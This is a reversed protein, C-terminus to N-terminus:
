GVESYIMMGYLYPCQPYVPAHPHKIMVEECFAIYILGRVRLGHLPAEKQPASGDVVAVVRRLFEFQRSM